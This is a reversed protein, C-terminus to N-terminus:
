KVEPKKLVDAIGSLIADPPLSILKLFQEKSWGRARCIAMEDETLERLQNDPKSPTPAPPASPTLHASAGGNPVPPAAPTFTIGPIMGMDAAGKIGAITSILNNDNMVDPQGPIQTMSLMAQDILHEAKEFVAKFRPDNRYRNKLTNLTRERRVNDVEAKLPAIADTVLGQLITAPRDLFSKDLEDIQPKDTRTGSAKLERLQRELDAARESAAQATTQYIQLLETASPSQPNTPNQPPSTGEPPQLETVPPTAPATM